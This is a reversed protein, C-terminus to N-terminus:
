YNINKDWMYKFGDLGYTDKVKGNCRNSVTKSDIYNKRACERASKYVEIIEGVEDLKAVRKSRAKLGNLKCLKNKKIVGLNDLRCDTKVGNKFHLIEDYELTINFAIQMLKHIKYKKLKSKINISVTLYGNM